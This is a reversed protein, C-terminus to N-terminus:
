PEKVASLRDLNNDNNHYLSEDISYIPLPTYLDVEINEKENGFLWHNNLKKIFVASELLTTDIADITAPLEDFIPQASSLLKDSTELLTISQRTLEDLNASHTALLSKSDNISTNVSDLTETLEDILSPLKESAERMSASMQSVNSMMIDINQQNHNITTTIKEINDLVNVVQAAVQEVNWEQLLDNLAKPEEVEILAGPELRVTSEGNKFVLGSGSLVNGIGITSDVLIKSGRVYFSEYQKSLWIDMLVQGNPMLEIAQVSGINIGKFDVSTGPGVDYTETMSVQFLIWRSDDSQEDNLYFLYGILVLAALILLGIVKDQRSTELASPPSFSM